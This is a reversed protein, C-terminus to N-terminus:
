PRGLQRGVQAQAEADGFRPALHQQQAWQEAGLPGGLDTLGPLRAASPGGDFVDAVLLALCPPVAPAAPEPLPATLLALALAADPSPM